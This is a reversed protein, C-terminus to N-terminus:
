SAVQQLLDLLRDANAAADMREHAHARAIAGCRARANADRVLVVLADHLAGVDGPPVLAGAALPVVEPNSAITTTVVPLGAAMAEGLVVPTCDGRTPLCFIDAAAFADRQAPTGPAIDRLVRVGPRAPVDAGTVLVLEAHHELGEFARLLEPGGKREFDGGVFLIRVPGSRPERPIAFFAPPAGPHAVLIRAPDAGYDAVLSDAAWQSWSVLSAADRFVRAYWRRKAREAPARGTAHGYWAGLADFQLPTADVSVIYPRGRMALPALLAVTQTHFLAADYHRGRVARYAQVSARLAWSVPVRAREPYTIRHVAVGAGRRAVAHELQLGHARHGLTQELCLALRRTAM